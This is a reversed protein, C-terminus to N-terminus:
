WKWAKGCKEHGKEDWYELGKQLSKTTDCLLANTVCNQAANQTHKPTLITAPQVM